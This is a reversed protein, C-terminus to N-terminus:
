GRAGILAAAEQLRRKQLAILLVISCEGTPGMAVYSGDTAHQLRGERGDIDLREGRIGDEEEAEKAGVVVDEPRGEHTNVVVVVTGELAGRRYIVRTDHSRYAPGIEKRLGAVFREIPKPREPPLVEFARPLPGIVERATLPPTGEPCEPTQPKLVREPTAGCGLACLAMTTVIAARRM